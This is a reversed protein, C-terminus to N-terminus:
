KEEVEIIRIKEGIWLRILDQRTVGYEKAAHEIKDLIEMDLTLYIGETKTADRKM